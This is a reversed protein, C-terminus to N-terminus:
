RTASPFGSAPAPPFINKVLDHFYSLGSYKNRQRLLHRESLGETYDSLLYVSFGRYGAEYHTVLPLLEAEDVSVGYPPSAGKRVTVRMMGGLLRPPESQASLFNGLSFFCVMPPSGERPIARFPQLVHPHHGIVLDVGCEALFLALEEQRESPTFEYENGWHMSVVLFDCLPRLAGIEGAMVDTDILSVLFPKDKPLPIGNTGYTYALFGIKINNREIINKGVDDREEPSRNIGLVLVDKQVDWFDIVEFVAGEGKDMTHNSAHNVVDFGLNVIAEGIGKPGNFLPYGSYGFGEGAIMTEQNIFAVDANKILSAVRTYYKDFDFVGDAETKADNILEIHILNDGVAVLTVSYDEQVVGAAEQAAPLQPPAPLQTQKNTACSVNLLFALLIVCSISVRINFGILLALGRGAGARRVGGNNAGGVFGIM